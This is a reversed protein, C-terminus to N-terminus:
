SVPEPSDTEATEPEAALEVADSQLADTMTQAGHRRKAFLAVGAVAVAVLGLGLPLFPTTSAAVLSTATATTSKTLPFSWKVTDADVKTAGEGSFEIVDGPFNVTLTANGLDMDAFLEDEGASESGENAFTFSINGNELVRAGFDKDDLVTDAFSITAIYDTESESADIRANAPTDTGSETVIAKFADASSIGAMSALQKNVSVVMSGSGKAQSDLTIDATMSMCGSTLLTVAAIGAAMVAHKIRM